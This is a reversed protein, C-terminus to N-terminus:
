ITLLLQIIISNSSSILLLILIFNKNMITFLNNSNTGYIENCHYFIELIYNIFINRYDIRIDDSKTFILNILVINPLLVFDQFYSHIINELIKYFLEFQKDNKDVNSEKIKKEEDALLSTGEKVNNLCIANFELDNRSTYISIVKNIKFDEDFNTLKFFSYIENLLKQFLLEKDYINFNKENLEGEYVYFYKHSDEATLDISDISKSIKISEYFKKFFYSKCLFTKVLEFFWLTIYSTIDNSIFIDGTLKIGFILENLYPVGLDIRDKEDEDLLVKIIIDLEDILFIMYIKLINLKNLKYFDIMDNNNINEEEEENEELDEDLKYENKSM